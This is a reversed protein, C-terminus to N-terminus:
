RPPTIPRPGPGRNVGEEWPSIRQGVPSLPRHPTRSTMRLVRGIGPEAAVEGHRQDPLAFEFVHFGEDLLGDPELFPVGQHPADEPREGAPEIITIQLSHEDTGPPCGVGPEKMARGAAGPESFMAVALGLDGNMLVQIVKGRAEIKWPKFEEPGYQWDYSFPRIRLIKGDRVDVAAVHSASAFASKGTNKIYTRETDRGMKDKVGSMM